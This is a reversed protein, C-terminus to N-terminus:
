PQWPGFARDGVAGHVTVEDGATAMEVQVYSAGRGHGLWRFVEVVVGGRELM